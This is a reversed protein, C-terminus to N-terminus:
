SYGRSTPSGRRAKLRMESNNLGARTGRLRLEAALALLLAVDSPEVRISRLDSGDEVLALAAVDFDEAALAASAHASVTGTAAVLAALEEAAKGPRAGPKAAIRSTAHAPLARLPEKLGLAAAPPSDPQAFTPPWPANLAEAWARMEQDPGSRGRRVASGVRVVKAFGEPAMPPKFEKAVFGVV